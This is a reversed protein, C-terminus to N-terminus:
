FATDGDDNETAEEGASKEAEFVTIVRAAIRLLQDFTIIEIRHLHANLNYLIV